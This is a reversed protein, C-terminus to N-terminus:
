IANLEPPLLSAAVTGALGTRYFEDELYELTLAFNLVDVISPPAAQAYVDRALAAIAVPVSAMALGAVVATSTSVGRHLAERRSVVRGLADPEITELIPHQQDM